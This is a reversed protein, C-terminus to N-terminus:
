KGTWRLIQANLRFGYKEYLKIADNGAVVKLEIQGIKAERFSAMAWDMLDRGYGRGRYTEPVILYDLKGCDAELDIKSFGIVTDKDEVVAIRSLGSTMDTIFKELTKEYPRTPYSGKHYLSVRNHHESLAKVCDYLKPIEEINIERVMIRM